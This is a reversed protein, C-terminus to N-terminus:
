PARRTPLRAGGSDSWARHVSTAVANRSAAPVTHNNAVSRSPTSPPTGARSAQTWAANWDIESRVAPKLETSRAGSPTVATTSHMEQISM